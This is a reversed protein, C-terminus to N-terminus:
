HNLHQHYHIHIETMLSINSTYTSSKLRMVTIITSTLYWKGWTVASSLPHIKFFFVVVNSQCQYHHNKYIDHGHNLWLSRKLIIRITISVWVGAIYQWIIFWWICTGSNTRTGAHVIMQVWSYWFVDYISLWAVIVSFLPGSIRSMTKKKIIKGTESIFM